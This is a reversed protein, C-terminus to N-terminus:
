QSSPAATRGFKSKVIRSMIENLAFVMDRPRSISYEAGKLNHVVGGIADRWPNYQPDLNYNMYFVPFRVEGLDKLADPAISDDVVAKPGAIIVADPQDQNGGIERSMFASLFEVDSHKQALKKLDVTGLNLSKVAAGLGPFDIRAAREQRYIVRQEQMNFAVLSL